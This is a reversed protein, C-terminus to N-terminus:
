PALFTLKVAQWELLSCSTHVLGCTMEVLGLVRKIVIRRYNLNGWFVVGLGIAFDGQGPSDSVVKKACQYNLSTKAAMTLTM